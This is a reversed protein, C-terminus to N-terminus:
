RRRTLPKASVQIVATLLDQPYAGTKMLQIDDVAAPHAARARKAAALIESPITNMLKAIHHLVELAPTDTTQGM